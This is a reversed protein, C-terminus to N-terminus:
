NGPCHGLESLETLIMRKARTKFFMIIPFNFLTIQAARINCPRAFFFPGRALKSDVAEM